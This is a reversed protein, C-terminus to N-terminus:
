LPHILEPNNGGKLSCLYLTFFTGVPWLTFTRKCINSIFGTQTWSVLLGKIQVPSYRFIEQTKSSNRIVTTVESNFDTIRIQKSFHM